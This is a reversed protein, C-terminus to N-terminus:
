PAKIREFIGQMFSEFQAYNFASPNEKHYTMIEKLKLAQVLEEKTYHNGHVFLKDDLDFLPHQKCIECNKHQRPKM